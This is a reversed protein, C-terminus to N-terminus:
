YHCLFMILWIWRQGQGVVPAGPASVPWWEPIRTVTRGGGEWAWKLNSSTFNIIVVKTRIFTTYFMRHVDDCCRLLKFSFQKQTFNSWWMLRLENSKVATGPNNSLTSGSHSLIISFTLNQAPPDRSISPNSNFKFCREREGSWIQGLSAKAPLKPDRPLQIHDPCYTHKSRVIFNYRWTMLIQRTPPINDYEAHWQLDRSVSIVHIIKYSSVHHAASRPSRPGTILKLFM